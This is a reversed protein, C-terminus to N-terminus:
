KKWRRACGKFTGCQKVHFMNKKKWYTIFGKRCLSEFISGINGTHKQGCAAALAAPSFASVPMFGDVALDGQLAGLLRAEDESLIEHSGTFVDFGTRPLEEKPPIPRFEARPQFTKTTYM